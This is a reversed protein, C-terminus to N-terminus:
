QLVVLSENGFVETTKEDFADALILLSPIIEDKEENYVGLFIKAKKDEHLVVESLPPITFDWNAGLQEGFITERCKDFLAIFPTDEEKKLNQSKFWGVVDNFSLTGEIVKVSLGEIAKKPRNQKFAGKKYAYYLAGAGVLAGIGFTLIYSMRSM